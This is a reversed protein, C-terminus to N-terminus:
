KSNCRLIRFLTMKHYVESVYISLKNVGWTSKVVRHKASNSLWLNWGETGAHHQGVRDFLSVRHRAWSSLIKAWVSRLCTLCKNAHLRTNLCGKKVLSFAFSHHEFSVKNKVSWFDQIFINQKLYQM